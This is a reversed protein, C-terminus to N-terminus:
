ARIYKASEAREAAQAAGLCVEHIESYTRRWGVCRNAARYITKLVIYEYVLSHHNTFAVGTQHNEHDQSNPELRWQGSIAWEEALKPSCRSGFSWPSLPSSSIEWCLSM